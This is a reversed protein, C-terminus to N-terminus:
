LANPEPSHNLNAGLIAKCQEPDYKEFSQLLGWSTPVVPIDLSSWLCAILKTGGMNEM